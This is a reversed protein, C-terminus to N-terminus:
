GPLGIRSLVLWKKEKTIKILEIQEIWNLVVLISTQIQMILIQIKCCSTVSISWHHNTVGVMLYKEPLSIEFTSSYSLHKVEYRIRQSEPPAAM